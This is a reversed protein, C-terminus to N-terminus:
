TCFIYYQKTNTNGSGIEPVVKVFRLDMPWRFLAVGNKTM